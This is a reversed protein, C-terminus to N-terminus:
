DVPLGLDPLSKVIEVTELSVTIVQGILRLIARPDDDRNPDNVIGSRKDTKVRYQDVVWGLASRHGLRYEEVEKPIGELTLADNYVVRGQAPDYKMREVRLDVAAGPTRKEELDYEEQSEYEVHLEALRKGAEAFPSFKPAFPIRPLSKKLNVAYRERYAPHHLVAYLYYFIEWKAISDDGYRERYTALAWDTLNECRNSGDPDYTYFPFCQHPDGYFNLDFINRGVLVAFDKRGYGGISLMSNENESHTTPLFEQFRGPRHVLVADYYLFRASYPRFLCTRIKGNDFAVPRGRVMHDKLAESWSIQTDDNDVFGDVLSRDREKKRRARWRVVHDNYTETTRLVEKSLRNRDFNYVWADRNSNVGLSYKRFFVGEPAEERQAEKSGLGPLEEFEPAMGETLWTHRADPQLLKWDVGSAKETEELYNYKEEKRWLEESRHYHLKAPGPGKGTKVLLNVSVGVQIGFVNHTTGSLKPNKRVNGGLDLIYIADFDEALHKRMGDTAIGDLFGNNSVFAVIGQTEIRDSAWRIAKIYPDDLKSKSSAKSDKSYTERVRRDIAPYKRNKNDDNENVQGVNYPPNGIVVRIPARKQREVRETNQETFLGMQKDEALEFTDVLCIGPFPRYEGALELYEHEINMSAIYYPLLMVENAHLENSYKDPLFSGKTDAIQRLVRILFNGTGVFPDLIHVGRSALGHKQDFETKLLEDVSRVMFDVIPQPTYVIGHTDAVKVSFGQFFQEYVTNLFSQKQSYDDIAAATNEIAAYFRDLSKLFDHRSFSKSTLAEIVIEIEAAIVNKSRFDDNDFVKRFIRETLLHQILMEEVAAESLNPNLSTKCLDFFRDFAVQFKKNKPREKRILGLLSDALEPIREKFEEVAQEWQDIDPEQHEFFEKLVDVLAQAQSVEADMALHGGQYLLM